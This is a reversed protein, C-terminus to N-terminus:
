DQASKANEKELKEKEQKFKRLERKTFPKKTKIIVVGNIGMKGYVELAKADKLIKIDIIDNPNIKRVIYPALPRGDIVYLPEPNNNTTSYGRLTISSSLGPQGSGTTINLGPVQGQLTRISYYDRAKIITTAIETENTKREEVTNNNSQNDDNNYEKPLAQIYNANGRGEVSKSVTTTAAINSMEKTTSRYGEVIVEQAITDDNQESMDAVPSAMTINSLSEPETDTRKEKLSVVNKKFRPPSPVIEEAQEVKNKPASENTVVEQKFGNIEPNFTEKVKQTDIVTVNNEQIIKPAVIPNTENKLMFTGIVMFLLFLAAIGTYKWWTAINRQKKNELKEEVRNWVSEMRDFGKDEARSAAEKFQQYIKDQNEMVTKTKTIFM